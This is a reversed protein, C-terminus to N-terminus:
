EPKAMSRWDAEPKLIPEHSNYRSGDETSSIYWLPIGNSIVRTASEQTKENWLVTGVPSGTFLLRAKRMAQTAATISNRSLGEKEMESVSQDIYADYAEPNM